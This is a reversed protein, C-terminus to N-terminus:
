KKSNHFSNFFHSFIVSYCCKVLTQRTIILNLAFGIRYCILLLVKFIICHLFTKLIYLMETVYLGSLYYLFPAIYTFFLQKLLYLPLRPVSKPATTAMEKIKDSFLSKLLAGSKLSKLTITLLYPLITLIHLLDNFPIAITLNYLFM